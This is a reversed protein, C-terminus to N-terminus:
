FESPFGDIGATKNNQMHKLAKSLEPLTLLGEISNLEQETLKIANLDAFTNDLKTDDKDDKNSFFDDYFKTIQALISKQESLTTNESIKLKKITKNIFKHNGLACFYITPRGGWRVM